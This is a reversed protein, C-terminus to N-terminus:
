KYLFVGQPVEAYKSSKDKPFYMGRELLNHTSNKFIFKEKLLYLIKADDFPNCSFVDLFIMRSEIHYHISLHAESSVRLASLWEKSEIQFVQTLSNISIESPLDTLFERIHKRMFTSSREEVQLETMLHPIHTSTKSAPYTGPMLTQHKRVITNQISYDSEYSGDLYILANRHKREEFGFFDLFYCKKKNNTYTHVTTHQGPGLLFGVVGEMANGLDDPFYLIRTFGSKKVSRFYISLLEENRLSSTEALYGDICLHIKNPFSDKM